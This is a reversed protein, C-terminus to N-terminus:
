LDLKVTYNEERLAQPAQYTWHKCERSLDAAQGPNGIKSYLKEILMMDLTKIDGHLLNLAHLQAM